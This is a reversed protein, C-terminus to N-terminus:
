YLAIDDFYVTGTGGPTTVAGKTGVGITITDVNTLDIGQDALTQLLIVWKTWTRTQAANLDEQITTVPAGDSNAISVYLPEAANESRGRFWLVLASVDHETWDRPYSLTLAAESYIAAGPANNYLLPLAQLGSHVFTREAYPPVLYGAQSGNEAVGFGDIWSQWIAEGAGDDDTYDEFDDVSIFNATTFNWLPGKQANSQSDVEDIRWYYTTHWALKGPDYSETGLAQNGKYELSATDATRVADKDTGFYIEHSAASDSATWSLTAVMKVDVAGNAPRPNGVAGPTRFSWIDGKYTDAGDFEDIRWYYVKESELPNAPTYLTSGQSVGETATDVDDYDDGLYITHLKAGFGATWSLTVQPDVFEAGDAPNPDYAKRPPISFRWVDGRWPSNPDAENVEDIRWYYTTGPVLGDPYPFGPFGVVFYTPIQNGRFADGTGDNVDDFNDSFYVDHSVAGSGPYWGLTAWTDFHLSGDAPTPGFAIPSSIGQMLKLVEDASLARMFLCFEDIQGNFQWSDDVDYGMRAGGGWNDAAEVGPPAEVFDNGYEAVLEGDIYMAGGGYENPVLEWTLAMHHWADYEVTGEYANIIYKNNIDGIHAHYQDNRIYGGHCWSHPAALASFVTQTDGTKEPKVWYALTMATTPIDESPYNAGDLDLYSGRDAVQCAESGRVGAGILGGVSGIVTADHGKDSKDLVFPNNGFGEFDYYIVLSPDKAAFANGTLALLLVFCFLYALGETRNLLTLRDFWKQCM